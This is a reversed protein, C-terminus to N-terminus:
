TTLYATLDRQRSINLMNIVQHNKELYNYILVLKEALAVQEPSRTNFDLAVYLLQSYLDLQAAPLNKDSLLLLLDSESQNLFAEYSIGFGQEVLVDLASEIELGKDQEKLGNLKTLALSLKQIEAMLLDRRLM